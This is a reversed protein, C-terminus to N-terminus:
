RTWTAAPIAPSSTRCSTSSRSARRKRRREQVGRRLGRLRRDDPKKMLELVNPDTHEPAVKLHGGVHHAALEDCTSPRCSPWTWASAALRRAGQPHGADERGRQMLEVLPGHDTGLLKCITPISARCGSASRRSRPGRAACRTCTRPRGASTASRRGQVGPRGGDQAVESCSRSRRARDPHDPGPPGHDLLVHLRRLLRAHDHGLGQDDRLAPIPERTRDPAAPAHVAPRLDRGDGGASLPLAPPNRRRGPPRSSCWRRPTSRTPKTTSSGRRRPSRRAQRDEVEEFSPLSSARRSPRRSESAGRARLGRRAPRAPRTVTEGPRSGGPSRSSRSSAWATSSAPRGQLRAPDVAQGHRELLRLPGAAAAVGRRRRRDGARRPVGRPCAPLVALTARDPRLGIRGGPSYADDNRVKKNATYHNIM